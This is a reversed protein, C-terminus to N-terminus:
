FTGRLSLAVVETAPPSAATTLAVMLMVTATVSLVFGLGARALAPLHASLALDQRVVPAVAAIVFCFIVGRIVGAALSGGIKM